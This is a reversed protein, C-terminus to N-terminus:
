HAEDWNFGVGSSVKLPVSLSVTNEMLASIAERVEEVLANEVEFVLEDHVQMIMACGKPYHKTQWADIAIMAKKIIDAASGQMPANIAMREAARQRAINQVNIEPLYLRRGFITEVYGDQHAKTRTREMYALVGPYRHFYQDIYYQAEKREIGLQKSLGFASMGYILGFNVAKARRRQEPSVAEISLQFIEAATARHIDLDNAFANLLGEDQSLHAMIRLEIQSYDFALLKAHPAAIFAKRILRGEEHRIPINQLNPDTSSLRGTAAVAQNYSTHVRGTKPNVRKPLADIYTTVLKNLGRYELIVAPLRFDYALDQLVSEATSPQGKPTKTLVPLKLEDFLLEQLQKPSNLNFHRGALDVAEKELVEIRAKLRLGHHKLTPLDILVGKLEMSALVPILPMEIQELVSQVTEPLMPYLTQHLKFCADVEESACEAAEGLSLKDFTLLKERKVEPDSHVKLKHGLYKLTLSSLDHNNSSSNLLYSEMMVDFAIGTLLIGQNRLVETDFKINNGLKKIKQSEFIPKLAALVSDKALAGSADQHHLPIYYPKDATTTLALGLLETQIPDKTTTKINLAFLSSGWLATVLDDLDALTQILRYQQESKSVVLVEEQLLEKLWTKFELTRVLTILVDRDPNKNVLDNLGFPLTLTKQITVLQKSLPLFSISQRLNEGIKGSISSAHAILEDMTKYEELWKAATKPGCKPIGPVNDVSDGILALYDIIQHPYVGFKEFVAQVTYTKNTMTNILSVNDNVLQAMDKDGTSIVVTQGDKTAQETLTGIVDDAEVGEVMLLPLGMAKLLDILPEFQCALDESMPPRHAKYEPYLDHRFNKGKADFVIIIQSSAYDKCLRRVMNAVGYVAGTPKGKSNMLPPLAHFARFFYSSGDVLVVPPKM